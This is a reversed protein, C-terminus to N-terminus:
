CVSGSHPLAVYLFTPFEVDNTWATVSTTRCEPSCAAVVQLHRPRRGCRRGNPFGNLDGGIVGTPQPRVPSRTLNLRLM